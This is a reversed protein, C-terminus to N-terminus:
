EAEAEAQRIMRICTVYGEIDDITDDGKDTIARSIKLLNMMHGVDEATLALPDVQPANLYTSWFKAIRDFSVKPHGYAKQRDGHALDAGRGASEAKLLRNNEKVTDTMNEVKRFRAETWGGDSARVDERVDDIWAVYLMGPTVQRIRAHIGEPFLSDGVTEVLDGPRFLGSGRQSDVPNSRRAEPADEAGKHRRMDALRKSVSEASEPLYATTPGVEHLHILYDRGIWAGHSGRSKGSPIDFWELELRGDPYVKRVEAWARYLRRDFRSTPGHKFIERARDLIVADGVNFETM